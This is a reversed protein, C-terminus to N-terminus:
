LAWRSWLQRGWRNGGFWTSASGLKSAAPINPHCISKNIACVAALHKPVAVNMELLM